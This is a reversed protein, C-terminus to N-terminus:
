FSKYYAYSVISIHFWHFSKKLFHGDVLSKVLKAAWFPGAIPCKPGMNYVDRFTAEVLM